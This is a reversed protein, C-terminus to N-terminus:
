FLINSYDVTSDYRLDNHDYTLDELYCNVFCEASTEVEIDKIKGEGIGTLSSEGSSTKNVNKQM